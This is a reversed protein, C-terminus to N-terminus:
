PQQSTACRFGLSDDSHDPVDGHRNTSRLVNEYFSWAGGRMIRKTGTAPGNPNSQPSSSYFTDSYWDATWEWVNGAMNLVGYPSVNAPYSDVATTDGMCPDHNIPYYNAISCDPASNGWPYIREDTGRAVKEWEAESPLHQGSWSCYTNADYWTVYIVPYNAFQFNGFYSSRSRSSSSDPLLCAGAKVCLAYMANTVESKDIWFPSLYVKHAPAEDTFWDYPCDRDTKLCEAQATNASDGMTFDGEPIYVLLM